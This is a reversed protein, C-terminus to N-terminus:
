GQVEHTDKLKLYVAVAQLHGAQIHVPDDEDKVNLALAGRKSLEAKIEPGATGQMLSDLQEQAFSLVEPLMVYGEEQAESAVYAKVEIGFPRKKLKSVLHVALALEGISLDDMTQFIPVRSNFAVCIKEFVEWEQWFYENAMVVKIAMLKNKSEENPYTLWDKRITEWLTEPEWKLWTAGYKANMENALHIPNTDPELLFERQARTAESIKEVRYPSKPQGPLNFDQRKDKLKQTDPAADFGIAGENKRKTTKQMQVIGEDPVM